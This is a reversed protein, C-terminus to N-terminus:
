NVLSKIMVVAEARTGNDLPGLVSGSRGHIIGAKVAKQLAPIAWDSVMCADTFGEIDSSSGEMAKNKLSIANIIIVSMEERSIFDNPRFNGDSGKVINAKYATEIYEYYWVTEEVDKFSKSGIEPKLGLAKVVLTVFEARTVRGEPEFLKDTRGAVIGRTALFEIDSEAWHNKIDGFTKMPLKPSSMITYKSFHTTEFTVTNSDKDVTANPLEEWISKSENLYYPAVEDSGVVDTKYKMTIKVPRNFLNGDPGFEIIDSALKLSEPIPTKIKKLDVIHATLQLNVSTDLAGAPIEVKISNDASAMVGGSWPVTKELITESIPIPSGGRSGVSAPIEAETTFTLNIDDVLNNGWVDELANAPIHLIYTTNYALNASLKISLVSDEINYTYSVVTNGKKLSINNFYVSEWVSETFNIIINSNVPVKVSNNSPIISNVAPSSDTFEQVRHNNQDTVYINGQYDVTIGSPWNFQGDDTGQSGFKAVFNGDTDFVQIRNNSTDAVFVNGILDVAIGRPYNFQGDESGPVGWKAVLQGQNDFKQVRHNQTDSVYVYGDLDVAIGKPYALQGVGSGVTGWGSIFEGNSDFKQIRGSDAVYINGSLDTTIAGISNFQGNGNGFYGWQNILQGNNDLKWVRNNGTDGVFVEGEANVTIAEPLEYTGRNGWKQIFQGEGDFKQVWSTRADSDVVFVNGLSDAAIGYPSIFQGNDIGAAGHKFILYGSSDIKTISDQDTVYVNGDLDLVIGTPQRDQFYFTQLLRGDSDFEYIKNIYPHAAFINGSDDVALGEPAFLSVGGFVWASWRGLLNGDTDFKQINGNGDSVYVNGFRDVIIGSPYNFEGADSGQNGWKCIYHGSSDFKQVRHNFKDVVYVNGTQDLSIGCPGNLQGDGSGYGGFKGLFNGETDFIQVRHNDRDTVYIKGSQDIAIGKPYQLQGNGTGLGGWKKLFVGDQDFKQIRNNGSDAVYINGVSDVAVGWPNNFYWPQELQPWKAQFQYEEAASLFCLNSSLVVLLLSLFISKICTSKKCYCQMKYAGKLSLGFWVNRGMKTNERELKVIKM